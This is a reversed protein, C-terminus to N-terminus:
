NKIHTLSANRNLIETIFASLINEDDVIASYIIKNWARPGIYMCLHICHAISHQPKCGEWRKIVGRGQHDKRLIQRVCWTRKLDPHAYTEGYPAVVIQSESGWVFPRWICFSDSNHSNSKTVYFPWHNPRAIQVQQSTASLIWALVNYIPMYTM